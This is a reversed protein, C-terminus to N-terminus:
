RRDRARSGTGPTRADGRSRGDRGRLGGAADVARRAGAAARELAARRPSMAGSRGSVPTAMLITLGQGLFEALLKWFERRSVPDVGTTPEDLVLIPPEHVLTCALALKQKMGGSLRDALRTRFPLLGTLTLLRTADHRSTGSATSARSSSSTRTSRSTATSASGSRCTGSARRPSAPRASRIPASCRARHRRGAEAPRMDLRLATTKGAGDPGILGFMEGRDVHFTLGDLAVVPASGANHPRRRRSSPRADTVATMAGEGARCPWISKWPCGPSSFARATTSASKSGTCWSQASTRPRCTARRSNPGHPLHVVGPGDFGIAPM